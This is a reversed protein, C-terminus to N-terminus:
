RGAAPSVLPPRGTETSGSPDSCVSAVLVAVGAVALAGALAEGPSAEVILRDIEDLRCIRFLGAKEFKTSDAIVTLNRSQAIMTRAIEAEDLTYDMPGELDLSGVTIVAHLTHFQSMQRVALPGLNEMADDSYEGGVLFARNGNRDHTMIQAIMLSNTIVTIETQKALEEAFLVTTSGTDVFLTDGPKFLGAAARAIARKEHLRETMRVQFPGEGRPSPLAAGGHFKWLLGKSALRSLDRRITEQSADLTRALADVKLRDGERLLDLIKQQRERPRM